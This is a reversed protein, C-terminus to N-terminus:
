PTTSDTILGLGALATLLNALAVNGGRSGTITPYAVATGAFGIGGSGGNFIIGGTGANDFSIPGSGAEGFQFGTSSTDDVIVGGTSAMDILTAQVFFQGGVLAFFTLGGSEEVTFDGIQTLAGPTTTEGPGTLSAYAGAVAQKLANAWQEIARMDIGYNPQKVEPSDKKPIILDKAM